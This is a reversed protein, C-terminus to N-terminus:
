FVWGAVREQGSAFRARAAPWPSCTFPLRSTMFPPISAGRKQTQAGTTSPPAQDDSRGKNHWRHCVSPLRSFAPISLGRRPQSPQRTAGPTSQPPPPQAQSQPPSHQNKQVKQLLPQTQPQSQLVSPTQHQTQPLTQAQVQPAWVARQPTLSDGRRLPSATPVVEIDVQVRRHPVQIQRPTVRMPSLVRGSGAVCVSAMPRPSISRSSKTPTQASRECSAFSGASRCQPLPTNQVSTALAASLARTGQAQSPSRGCSGCSGVARCQPLPTSQASVAATRMVQTQASGCSDSRCQLPGARTAAMSSAHATSATVSSMDSVTGRFRLEVDQYRDASQDPLSCRVDGGLLTKVDGLADVSGAGPVFHSGRNADTPAVTVVSSALDAPPWQLTEVDDLECAEAPNGEVCSLKGHLSAIQKERDALASLLAEKEQALEEKVRRRHSESLLSEESVCEALRPTFKLTPSEDVPERMPLPITECMSADPRKGEASGHIDRTVLLGDTEDSGCPTCTLPTSVATTHTVVTAGAHGRIDSSNNPGESCAKPHFESRETREVSDQRCSAQTVPGHADSGRIDSSNNAGESCANPHLESHETREVSDQRSSAQTVRGHADSGRNDSSNNAGESCAKPHLESCKAPEVLDQRSDAQILRGHSNCCKRLARQLIAMDTTNRVSTDLDEGHHPISATRTSGVAADTNRTPKKRAESSTAPTALVESVLFQQTEGAPAANKGFSPNCKGLARQLLALDASIRPDVAATADGASPPKSELAAKPRPSIQSEALDAAARASSMSGICPSAHSMLRGREPSKASVNRGQEATAVNCLGRSHERRSQRPAHENDKPVKHGNFMVGKHLTETAQRPDYELVEHAVGRECRNPRPAMKECVEAATDQPDGLVCDADRGRRSRRPVREVVATKSGLFDAEFTRDDQPATTSHSESRERRSRRTAKEDLTTAINSGLPEAAEKQGERDAADSGTQSLERRSRRGAKRDCPSPIDSKPEAVESQADGQAVSSTDCVERRSRRVPKEGPTTALKSRVPEAVEHETDRPFDLSARAIECHESRRSRRAAREDSTKAIQSVRPELSECDREVQPVAIFRDALSHEGRKRRADGENPVCKTDLVLSVSPVIGRGQNENSRRPVWEGLRDTQVNQKELTLDVRFVNDSKDRRSRRTAKDLKSDLSNSNQMLQALFDQPSCRGDGREDISGLSGLSNSRRRRRPVETVIQSPENPFDASVVDENCSVARHRQPNQGRSAHPFGVHLESAEDPGVSTSELAHQVSHRLSSSGGAGMTRKSQVPTTVEHRGREM